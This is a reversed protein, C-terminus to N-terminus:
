EAQVDIGGATITVALVTVVILTEIRIKKM